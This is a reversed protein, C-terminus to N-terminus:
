AVAGVIVLLLALFVNMAVGVKADPWGLVCLLSSAALGASTAEFAWEAHLRVAAGAIVFWVAAGLWVTGMVRAGIDGVDVHGGLVTTKYPLEPLEALRWGAVFGVLHAVGHAVLLVSILLRM